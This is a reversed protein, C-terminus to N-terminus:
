EPNKNTLNQVEIELALLRKELSAVRDRQGVGVQELLDNVGKQMDKAVAEFERKGDEAIKEATAKAEDASIRGKEVLDKLSEEIKEKTLVAAGVGALVTKRFLDIM